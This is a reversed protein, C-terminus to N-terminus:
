FDFPNLKLHSLLILVDHHWEGRSWSREAAVSAKFIYEKGFSLPSIAHGLHLLFHLQWCEGKAAVSWTELVPNYKVNLKPAQTDLYLVKNHYYHYFDGLSKNLPRRKGIGGRGGKKERLEAEWETLFYFKSQELFFVSNKKKSIKLSFSYFAAETM